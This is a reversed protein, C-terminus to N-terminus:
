AEGPGLLFTESEYLDKTWFRGRFLVITGFAIAATGIIRVTLVTNYLTDPIERSRSYKANFEALFEYRYAAKLVMVRLFIM